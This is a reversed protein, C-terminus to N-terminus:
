QSNQRQEDMERRFEAIRFPDLHKKASNSVGSCLRKVRIEAVRDRALKASQVARVQISDIRGTFEGLTPLDQLQSLFKSVNDWKKTKAAGRTRAMLVERTAVIDILESQLLAVEGEVNLRARDNPVEVELRPSYGPIFPLKALLAQGSYVYLFQIPSKEVVPVTVIGRRDTELKLRDDVPDEETPVRDMVECRFGVLPNQREGRPYILVETAPLHPRIRIAKMEVRRRKGAVPNGFASTISLQIRSRTVSEVKMYTWPLHQIKQVERKRDLFRMYPVLYDGIKFQQMDPNRPLFEGGRVLFEITSGDVVELNATPRFAESINRALTAVIERRDAITSSHLSGVTRSSTDWERSLISFKGAQHSVTALFIKDFESNVFSAPITEDSLLALQEAALSTEGTGREVSLKWMNHFQAALHNQLGSTAASQTAIPLMPNAEFSVYVRIRYPQLIAPPPPPPIKDEVKEKVETTEEESPTEKAVEEKVPADKTATDETKDGPKVVERTAKETTPNEQDQAVSFRASLLIAVAFVILPTSRLMLIRKLFHVQKRQRRTLDDFEGFQEALCTAVNKTSFQTRNM